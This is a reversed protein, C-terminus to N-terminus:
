RQMEEDPPTIDLAKIEKVYERVLEMNLAPVDKIKDVLVQQLRIITPDKPM